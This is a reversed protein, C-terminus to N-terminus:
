IRIKKFLRTFFGKKEEKAAIQKKSETIERIAEMLNKDREELRTNIYEQQKQLTELLLQNFKKQEDIDKQLQLLLESVNVTMEHENDNMTITVPMNMQRLAEEVDELQKGQDYLERINRIISLSESSILYSKGRKKIKLHHGHNRIYRRITANPIGTQKEIDTVYFWEENM